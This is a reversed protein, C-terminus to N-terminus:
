WDIARTNGLLCGGSELAAALTSTYGSGDAQGILCDEGILVSFQVSDVESGRPTRDATVQMAARDFGASALNDIIPRGGPNGSTLVESNVFDFYPLNDEATGGPVLEPDAEATPEVNPASSPSEATSTPAPPTVPPNTCAVLTASALVIVASVAYRRIVGM